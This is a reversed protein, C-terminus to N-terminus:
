IVMSTDHVDEPQYRSAPDPVQLDGDIRFRYRTGHGANPLNLEFWGNDRREMETFQEAIALEVMRASPAWLRFRVSRGDPLSEAGLPMPQQRTLVRGDAVEAM